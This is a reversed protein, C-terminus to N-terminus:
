SFDWKEREHLARRTGDRELVFGDVVTSTFLGFWRNRMAQVVVMHRGEALNDHYLTLTEGSAAPCATVAPLAAVESETLAQAAALQQSARAALDSKM